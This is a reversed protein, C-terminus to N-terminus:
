NPLTADRLRGITNFDTSPGDLLDSIREESPAVRFKCEDEPNASIAGSAVGLLVLATGDDTIGYVPGGSDGQYTDIPSCLYDETGVAEPDFGNFNAAQFRTSCQKNRALFGAPKVMMLLAQSLGLGVVRRGPKLMGSPEPPAITIKGEPSSRKVPVELDVIVLDDSLRKVGKCRHVSAAPYWGEGQYFAAGTVFRFSTEADCNAHDGIRELKWQDENERPKGTALSLNRLCHLATVVSNGDPTLTGTCTFHRRGDASGDCQRRDSDDVILNGEADRNLGFGEVGVMVADTVAFRLAEGLLDSRVEKPSLKDSPTDSLGWNAPFLVLDRCVQRWPEEICDQRTTSPSSKEPKVVTGGGVGDTLTPPSPCGTTLPIVPEPDDPGGPMLLPGKDQLLSMMAIQHSPLVARGHIEWESPSIPDASGGLFSEFLVTAEFFSLDPLGGNLQAIEKQYAVLANDTLFARMPAGGDNCPTTYRLMAAAAGAYEYTKEVDFFKAITAESGLKGNAWDKLSSRKVEDFGSDTLAEYSVIDVVKRTDMVNPLTLLGGATSKQGPRWVLGGNTEIAKLFEAASPVDIEPPLTQDGVLGDNPNFVSFSELQNYWDKGDTLASGFQDDALYQDILIGPVGSGDQALVSSCALAFLSGLRAAASL